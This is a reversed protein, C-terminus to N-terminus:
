DTNFLNLIDNSKIFSYFLYDELDFISFRIDKTSVYRLGADESM